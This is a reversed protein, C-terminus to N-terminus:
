DTGRSSRATLSGISGRGASQAGVGDRFESPKSGPEATLERTWVMESGWSCCGRGGEVERRVAGVVAQRARRQSEEIGGDSGIM